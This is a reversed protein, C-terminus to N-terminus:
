DRKLRMMEKQILKKTTEENPYKQFSLAAEFSSKAETKKGQKAQAIGLHLRSVPQLWPEADMPTGVCQALRQESTAADGKEFASRGLYYLAQARLGSEVGSAAVLQEGQAISADYDGANFLYFQKTQVIEHPTFPQKLRKVSEDEGLSQQYFPLGAARNGQLEHCVGAYYRANRALNSDNPVGSSAASAITKQFWQVGEPFNNKYMYALGLQFQALCLSSKNVAGSTNGAGSSAKNVIAQFQAIAKDAKRLRNLLLIGYLNQYYTNQPFQAMLIGYFYGAREYQQELRGAYFGSLWFMAEYKGYVGKAAVNELMKLGLVRDGSLGALKLAPKIFAPAQSVFYNFLGAGMQADVNNPNAAVAENLKDIGKKGEWLAKTMDGNNVYLLGRYGQLGGMYFMTQADNPNNKLIAECVQIARSSMALFKEFDSREKGILNRYYYVMAKFFHGRPDQPALKVVENCKQEAENFRLNYLENMAAVTTTHVQAWQEQTLQPAAQPAQQCYASTPKSCLFAASAGLAAFACLAVVRASFRRLSLPSLPSLSMTTM